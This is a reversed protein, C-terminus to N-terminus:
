TVSNDCLLKAKQSARHKRQRRAADTEKITLEPVQTMMLMNDHQEILNVRALYILLMKITDADEDIELALEDEITDEIGEYMLVGANTLSLLMLKLYINTLVEGGPLKRMKKIEKDRFFNEPLKLFYYNKENTEAM